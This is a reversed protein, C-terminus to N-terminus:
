KGLRLLLSPCGSLIGPMRESELVLLCLIRVRRGALNSDWEEWNKREGELTLGVTQSVQVGEVAM